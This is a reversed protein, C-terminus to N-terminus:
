NKFIIQKQSYINQNIIRHMIKLPKLLTIDLPEDPKAKDEKDFEKRDKEENGSDKVSVQSDSVHTETNTISDDRLQSVEKNKVGKDKTAEVGVFLKVKSYDELMYLENAKEIDKSIKSVLESLIDMSNEGGGEGMGTQAERQQKLLPATKIIKSMM